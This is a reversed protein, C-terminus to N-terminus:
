SLLANYKKASALRREKHPKGPKEFVEMFVEAITTADDSNFAEVLKKREGHALMPLAKAGASKRMPTGAVVQDMFEIQASISDEIGKEQLWTIYYPKMFDLQFLGHGGGGGRQKQDHAFSGGTEVDINGLIGAIANPSYGLSSLKDAVEQAPGLDSNLEKKKPAEPQRANRTGELQLILNDIQDVSLSELTLPAERKDGQQGFQQATPALLTEPSVGYRNLASETIDDLQQLYRRAVSSGEEAQQLLALAENKNTLARYLTRSVDGELGAVAQKIYAGFPAGASAGLISGLSGGTFYGATAGLLSGGLTAAVPFDQAFQAFDAGFKRRISREDSLFQQTPSSGRSPATQLEGLRGQSEFDQLVADIKQYNEPGLALRLAQEKRRWFQARGLQKKSGASTRLDSAVFETLAQRAEPTAVRGFQRANDANALIKTPIQSNLLAREGYKKRKLIQGTAGQQLEKGARARADSAKGLTGGASEEVDDIATRVAKALNKNTTSAGQSYAIDGLSQRYFNAAELDIEGNNDVIKEIIKMVTPDVKGPDKTSVYKDFAATVRQVLQEGGIQQTQDLANYLDSVEGFRKDKVDELENFIRSGASEATVNDSEILKNLAQINEETRLGRRTAAEAGAGEPFGRDLAGEARALRENDLMEALSRFGQEPPNFASRIKSTDFVAVEGPEVTVGYKNKFERPKVVVGDYGQALAAQRFERSWQDFEPNGPTISGRKPLGLEKIKKDFAGWPNDVVIPNELALRTKHVNPSGGSPDLGYSNAAYMSATDANDTLYIGQGVLGSDVRSGAKDINFEDFVKNTGHYYPTDAVGANEFSKEDLLPGLKSSDVNAEDLVSRLSRAALTNRGEETALRGLKQAEDAVGLGARVGGKLVKATGLTLLDQTLNYAFEKGAEEPTGVDGGTLLDYLKQGAVAGGSGGAVSGAPGGFAGLATGAAGGGLTFAARGTRDLPGTLQPDLEKDSFLSQVYTPFLAKAAAYDEAINAVGRPLSALTSPLEKAAGTIVDFWSDRKFDVPGSSVVPPASSGELENILADIQSSSLQELDM